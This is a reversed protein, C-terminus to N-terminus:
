FRTAFFIAAALLFAAAWWLPRNWWSFRSPRERSAQRLLRERLTHPLPERRWSTIALDYDQEDIEPHQALLAALERAEAPSLDAVARVARLEALREPMMFM